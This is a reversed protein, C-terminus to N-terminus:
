PVREVNWAVMKREERALGTVLIWGAANDRKRQRYSRCLQAERETHCLDILLTNNEAILLSNTHRLQDRERTADDLAYSLECVQDRLHDRDRELNDARNRHYASVIRSVTFALALLTALAIAPNM